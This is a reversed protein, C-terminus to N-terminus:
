ERTALVAAFDHVLQGITDGAVAFGGALMIQGSARHGTQASATYLRRVVQFTLWAHGAHGDPAFSLRCEESGELTASGRRSQEFTRLARLFGAADILVVDPNAVTEGDLTASLALAEGDGSQHRMVRVVDRGDASRISVATPANM